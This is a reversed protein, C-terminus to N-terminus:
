DEAEPDPVQANKMTRRDRIIRYAIAGGLGLFVFAILITQNSM